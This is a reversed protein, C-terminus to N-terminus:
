RINTEWSSAVFPLPQSFCMCYWNTESRQPHHEFVGWFILMAIGIPPSTESSGNTKHSAWIVPLGSSWSGLPWRCSLTFKVHSLRQFLLHFPNEFVQSVKLSPIRNKLSKSIKLNQLKYTESHWWKCPEKYWVFKLYALLSGKPRPAYKGAHITGIHQM